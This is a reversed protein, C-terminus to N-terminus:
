AGTILLTSIDMAEDGRVAHCRANEDGGNKPDRDDRPMAGSRRRITPWHAGHRRNRNLKPKFDNIELGLQVAKM